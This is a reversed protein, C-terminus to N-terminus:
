PPLSPGAWTEEAAPAPAAPEQGPRDAGRLNGWNLFGVWGLGVWRADHEAVTDRHPARSQIRGATCPSVANGARSMALGEWSPPVRLL